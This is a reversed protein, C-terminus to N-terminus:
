LLGEEVNVAGAAVPITPVQTAWRAADIHEVLGAVTPVTFLSRLPLEVNFLERVRAVISTALLSHGGLEFFNDHLGVQELGLVEKWINAIARETDTEPPVFTRKLTKRAEELTPLARHNIKGNLTLPLRRLHVFMNPLMEEIISEGMFSRLEGADLEQRAVYYAMM